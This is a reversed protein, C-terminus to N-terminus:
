LSFSITSFLVSLLDSESSLEKESFHDESIFRSNRAWRDRDMPSCAVAASMRELTKSLRM